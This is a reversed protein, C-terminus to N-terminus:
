KKVQKLLVKLKVDPNCLQDPDPQAEMEMLRQLVKVDAAAATGEAISVVASLKNNSFGLHIEKRDSELSGRQLWHEAAAPFGLTQIQWHYQDSWIWPVPNYESHNGLINAVVNEAQLNANQYSELRQQRGYRPLYSAACDGIAYVNPISTQGRADTLIGNDCPLGAAEALQTNPTVGIGVIVADVKLESGDEFEVATVQHNGKFGKLAANCHIVNGQSEHLETIRDALFAPLSRAMIRPGAELVHTAIGLRRASAAVEMGIFGAGIIAVATANQLRHKIALADTDTRLLHVGPLDRGPLPLQRPTAGTAFVLIDFELTQGTDTHVQRTKLDIQEARTNLHLTIDQEPYTAAPRLLLDETTQTGTLVGKSLAPREYPASAEEGLLSITGTFGKQRLQLALQGGAQGAGIILVRQQSM